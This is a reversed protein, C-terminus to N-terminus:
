SVELSKKVSLSFANELLRKNCEIKELREEISICELDEDIKRIMDKVQIILYDLRLQMWQIEPPQNHEVEESLPSLIKRLEQLGNLQKNMTELTRLLKDKRTLKM